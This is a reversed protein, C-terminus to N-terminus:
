IRRIPELAASEQPYSCIVLIEVWDTQEEKSIKNQIFLNNSPNTLEPQQIVTDDIQRCINRSKM